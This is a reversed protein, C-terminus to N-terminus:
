PAPVAGEDSAIEAPLPRTPLDPYRKFPTPRNTPDLPQFRILEAPRGRGPQHKTLEHLRGAAMAGGVSGARRRPAALAFPSGTSASCVGAREHCRCIGVGHAPSNLTM